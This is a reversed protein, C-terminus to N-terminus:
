RRHDVVACVGRLRQRATRWQKASLRLREGEGFAAVGVLYVAEAQDVQDDSYVHLDDGYVVVHVHGSAEATAADQAAPGRDVM